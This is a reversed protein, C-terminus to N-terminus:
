DQENRVGMESAARWAAASYRCLGAGPSIPSMNIGQCGIIDCAM